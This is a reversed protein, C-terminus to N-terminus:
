YSTSDCSVSGAISYCNTHTQIPKQRERAKAKEIELQQWYDLQAPKQAQAGMGHIMQLTQMNQQAIAAQGAPSNEYNQKEVFKNLRQSFKKRMASCEAKTVDTKKHTLVEVRQDFYREANKDLGLWIRNAQREGIINSLADHKSGGLVRREADNMSKLRTGSPLCKEINNAETIYAIVSDDPIKYFDKVSPNSSCGLIFLSIATVIFIKKM